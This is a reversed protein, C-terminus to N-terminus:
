AIQILCLLVDGEFSIFIICQSPVLGPGRLQCISEDMQNIQFLGSPMLPSLYGKFKDPPEIDLFIFM